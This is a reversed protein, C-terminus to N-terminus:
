GYDEEKLNTIKGTTTKETLSSETVYTLIVTIGM